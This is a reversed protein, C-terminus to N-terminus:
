PVGPRTALREERRVAARRDARLYETSSTPVRRALTLPLGGSFRPNVEHVTVGGDEAVFGQM